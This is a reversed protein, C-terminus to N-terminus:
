ALKQKFGKLIESPILELLVHLFYQMVAVHLANCEPFWVIRHVREWHRFAHTLLIPHYLGSLIFM